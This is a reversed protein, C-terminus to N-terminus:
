PRPRIAEAAAAARQPERRWEPPAATEGTRHLETTPHRRPANRHLAEPVEAPRPRQAAIAARPRTAICEPAGPELQRIAPRGRAEHQEAVHRARARALLQRERVRQHAEADPRTEDIPEHADVHGTGHSGWRAPTHV